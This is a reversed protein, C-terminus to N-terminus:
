QNKKKKKVERILIKQNKYTIKMLDTGVKFQKGYFKKKKKCNRTYRNFNRWIFRFYFLMKWLNTSNWKSEFRRILQTKGSGPLGLLVFIDFFKIKLGVILVDSSFFTPNISQLIKLSAILKQNFLSIEEYKQKPFNEM